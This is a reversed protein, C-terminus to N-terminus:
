ATSVPSFSHHTRPSVQCTFDIGTIAPQMRYKLPQAGPPSADKANLLLNVLVQNLQSVDGRVCIGQEAHVTAAGGTIAQAESAFDALWSGVAITTMAPASARSYRLIEDTITRGRKIGSEIGRLSRDVVEPAKRRKLVEVFTGIGMLVNNFEHAMTAAVRGLTAIRRTEELQRATEFREAEANQADTIDRVSGFIRVPQGRADVAVRGTARLTRVEGEGRRIRYQMEIPARTRIANEVTSVFRARDEEVVQARLEDLPPPQEAAPLGYIRFVEDSWRSDDNVLDRDFVGVDDLEEVTSLSEDGWVDRVGILIKTEEFSDVTVEALFTAGGKRCAMVFLSHPPWEDFLASVDLTAAEAASHGFLAQAARSWFIISGNADAVVLADILPLSEPLTM